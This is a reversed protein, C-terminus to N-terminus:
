RYKFLEVKPNLFDCKGFIKVGFLTATRDVETKWLSNFKTVGERASVLRWIDDSHRLNKLPTNAVWCRMMSLVSISLTECTIPQMKM